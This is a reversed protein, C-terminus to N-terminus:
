IHRRCVNEELRHRIKENEQCHRKLFCVNNISMFALKGIRKHFTDKTNYRCFDDGFGLDDLNEGTNDELHKITKSKVNLGTIWKSSIKTFPSFNINLSKKKAHPHRITRTSNTLFSM